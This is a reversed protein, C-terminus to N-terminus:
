YSTNASNSNAFGNPNNGGSWSGNGGSASLQVNPSSLDGCVTQDQGADVQPAPSPASASGSDSCSADGSDQVSFNGYNPTSLPFNTGFLTQTNYQVGYSLNNVTSGDQTLTLSYTGSGGSSTVLVDYNWSSNGVCYVNPANATISCNTGCGDINAAFLAGHLEAADHDINEAVVQGEINSNGNVTLAVSPAFVVGWLTNNTNITLNDINYFHYVIYQSNNYGQPTANWVNWTANSAGQGDVNIVLFTNSNLTPGNFNMSSKGQLQSLTVNLVNQGSSYSTSNGGLSITAPCSAMENSYSNMTNFATTFDILNSELIPYGSQDDGQVKIRKNSASSSYAYNINTSQNVSTGTSNGIKLFGKDLLMQDSGSMNGWKVRGNVLLGVPKPDGPAYFPNTSYKTVVYGNEYSNLDGGIAVPGETESDTLDADGEVFVSFGLAPGFPNFTSVTPLSESSSSVELPPIWSIFFISTILITSLQRFVSTRSAISFYLKNM